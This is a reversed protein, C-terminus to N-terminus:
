MVYHLQLLVVLADVVLTGLVTQYFGGFHVKSIRKKPDNTGGHNGSGKRKGFVAVRDNMGASAVEFVLENPASQVKHMTLTKFEPGGPLHSFSKRRRGLVQISALSGMRSKSAHAGAGNVLKM